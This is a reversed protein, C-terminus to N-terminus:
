AMAALAIGIMAKEGIKLAQNSGREGAGRIAVAPTRHKKGTKTFVRRPSVDTRGDWISSIREYAAPSSSIKRRTRIGVARGNTKEANFTAVTRAIIPAM